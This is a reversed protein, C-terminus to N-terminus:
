SLSSGQSEADPGNENVALSLWTDFNNEATSRCSIGDPKIITHGIQLLAQLIVVVTKQTNNGPM